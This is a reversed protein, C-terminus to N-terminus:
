QEVSTHPSLSHFDEVYITFKTVERMLQVHFARRGLRIYHEEM